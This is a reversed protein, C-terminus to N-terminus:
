YFAVDNEGHSIIGDLPDDTDGSSTELFLCPAPLEVVEIEPRIYKKKDNDM